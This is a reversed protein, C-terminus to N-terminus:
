DLEDLSGKGGLVFLFVFCPITELTHNQFMIHFQLIDPFLASM